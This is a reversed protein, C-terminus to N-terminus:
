TTEVVMVAIAVAEVVPAEKAGDVEELPKTRTQLVPVM